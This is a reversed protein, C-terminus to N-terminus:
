STADLVVAGKLWIEPDLTGRPYGDLAGRYLEFHLHDPDIDRPNDNVRGVPYGMEVDQGVVVILKDMHFYGIRYGNEHEVWARYGTPSWSAHTVKGTATACAWTDEPIWWNRDRGGDGIRKAPDVAGDYRYFLDVGFHNSRHPNHIAHRSTIQPERGDVLRRLPWCRKAPLPAAGLSSVMLDLAALTLPGAEGDPKLGASLQFLIVAADTRPGYQGDVVVTYGLKALQRQLVSVNAGHDGVKM